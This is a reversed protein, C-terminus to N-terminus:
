IAWMPTPAATLSQELRLRDDLDITTGPRWWEDVRVHPSELGDAFGLFEYRDLRLV